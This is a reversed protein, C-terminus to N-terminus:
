NGLSSGDNNAPLTYVTEGSKSYYYKERILKQIYDSDNLQKVEENLEKNKSKAQNLRHQEVATQRDIRVAAVRSQVIRFLGCVTGVAVVLGVLLMRAKHSRLQRNAHEREAKKKQSQFYENHLVKIKSNEPMIDGCDSQM